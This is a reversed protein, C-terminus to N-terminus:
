RISRRWCRARRSAARSARPPISIPPSTGARSRSRCCTAPRSWSPSGRRPTPSRCASTTACTSSATAVGLARAALRLLERQAEEPSPTPLAQVAAPLVRETLDYVREFAGRRTATTVEGAFFLWEIAYSATAGAGGRGPRPRARRSIPPPSPVAIAVIQRRVEDIYAGKERRFVHLKGKSDGAHAAAARAMRWRLLPHSALPLLSAEHAWFEFLGRQSKRGWALRDLHDSDYNGLRSFLPLYHARALVNVSDIQLLGLRDIARKVHGANTAGDPRPIGFGQAALAIRRAAPASVTERKRSVRWALLSAQPCDHSHHLDFAPMRGTGYENGSHQAELFQSDIGAMLRHRKQRTAAREVPGLFEHGQGADLDGAAPPPDDGGQVDDVVLRDHGGVLQPKGQEGMAMEPQGVARRDLDGLGRRRGAEVMHAGLDVAGHQRGLGVLRDGLVQHRMAIGLHLDGGEQDGARAERRRGLHQRQGPRHGRHAALQDHSPSTITSLCQMPPMGPLRVEIITTGITAACPSLIGLVEDRAMVEGAPVASVISTSARTSTPGSSIRSITAASFPQRTHPPWALRDGASSTSIETSRGSAISVGSCITAEIRDFFSAAPEVCRTSSRGTPGVALSRLRSDNTRRRLSNSYMASSTPSFATTTPVSPLWGIPRPM